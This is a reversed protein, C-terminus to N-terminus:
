SCICRRNAIDHPTNVPVGILSSVITLALKIITLQRTESVNDFRGAEDLGAISTAISTLMLLLSVFYKM